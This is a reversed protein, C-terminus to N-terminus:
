SCCQPKVLIYARNECLWVFSSSCVWPICNQWRGKRWVSTTSPDVTVVSIPILVKINTEETYNLNSRKPYYLVTVSNSAHLLYLHKWSYYLLSEFDPELPLSVVTRDNNADFWLLYHLTQRRIALASHLLPFLLSIDGETLTRLWFMWVAVAAYLLPM